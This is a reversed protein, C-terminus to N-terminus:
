RLCEWLEKLSFPLAIFISVYFVWLLATIMPTQLHM